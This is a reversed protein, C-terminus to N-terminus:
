SPSRSRSHTPSTRRRRISCLFAPLIKISDHRWLTGPHPVSRNPPWQKLLDLRTLPTDASTLAAAIADWNASVDDAVDNDSLVQYSTGTVHM